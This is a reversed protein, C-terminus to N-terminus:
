GDHEFAAIRELILVYLDQAEMVTTPHDWDPCVINVLKVFDPNHWAPDGNEMELEIEITEIDDQCFEASFCSTHFEAPIHFM